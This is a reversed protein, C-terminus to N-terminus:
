KLPHWTFDGEKEGINNMVAESMGGPDTYGGPKWFENAGEENGSPIRLDHQAVVDPAVDIRNLPEDGLYGEEFGLLEEFKRNDGGAAQEILDAQDKSLWFSAGDEGGIIGNNWDKSPAFKQFKSAGNEKIPQLHNEIYGSDLYDEAPERMGKPTALIDEPNKGPLYEPKPAKDHAAQLAKNAREVDNAEGMVKNFNKQVDNKPLADAERGIKNLVSENGGAHAFAYNLGKGEFLNGINDVARGPLTALNKANNLGTKALSKTFLGAKSLLSDAESAKAVNAAGKIEAGGVFLSAVNFVTEGYVEMNGSRLQNWYNGLGKLMQQQANPNTALTHVSKGLDYVNLQAMGSAMSGAGKAFGNVFGGVGDNGLSKGIGNNYWKGINDSAMGALNFGKGTTAMSAHNIASNLGGVILVAGFPAGVGTVVMATGVVIQATDLILGWIGEEKAKKEAAKALREQDKTYDKNISTWDDKFEKQNKSDMAYSANTQLANIFDKSMLGSFSGAKYGYGRPVKLTRKLLSQTQALLDQIQNFGPDSQEYTNWKDMLENAIKKMDDMKQAVNTLNSSGAGGLYVMGEAKDSIAKLQAGLDTFDSRHTSLQKQHEELDERVLKFNHNGDVELYGKVYKGLVMQYNTLALNLTQILTSHVEGIYAKMSDAAKGKISNTSVLQNLAQNLQDLPKTRNQLGGAIREALNTLEDYYLEDNSM